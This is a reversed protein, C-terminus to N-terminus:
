NRFYNTKLIPWLIGIMSDRLLWRYNFRIWSGIIFFCLLKERRSAPSSLIAKIYENLHMWSPMQLKGQLKPDFWEQRYKYEPYARTSQQEHYRSYFLHEPIEYFCGHLVLTGLLVRDSGVFSQILKTKSLTNSRIVGFLPHCQHPYRYVDIFDKFRTSVRSSIFNSNDPYYRTTEGLENIIKNKAYCVVV